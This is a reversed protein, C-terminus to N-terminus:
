SPPRVNVFSRAYEVMENNIDADSVEEPSPALMSNLAAQMQADSPEIYTAEVEPQATPETLDMPKVDGFNRILCEAMLPSVYGDLGESLGMAEMAKCARDFEGVVAPFMQSPSVSGHSLMTAVGNVLCPKGDRYDAGHVLHAKGDKVLNLFDLFVAQQGPKLQGTATTWRSFDITMLM